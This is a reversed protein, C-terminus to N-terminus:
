NNIKNSIRKAIGNTIIAIDKAENEKDGSFSLQSGIRKMNGLFGHNTVLEDSYEGAPYIEQGNKKMSYRYLFTNNGYSENCSVGEGMFVRTYVVDINIDINENNQKSTACKNEKCFADTIQKYFINTLEQQNPYNVGPCRSKLEFNSINIKYQTNETVHSKDFKPASSCAALILVPLLLLKKM